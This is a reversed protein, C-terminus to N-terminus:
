IPGKGVEIKIKVPNALTDYVPSKRLLEQSTAEDADGKVRFESPGRSTLRHSLAWADVFPFSNLFLLIDCM